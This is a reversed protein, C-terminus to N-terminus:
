ARQGDRGTTGIESIRPIQGPDRWAAALIEDQVPGRWVTLGAGHYPTLEGVKLGNDTLYMDVRIHDFGASMRESAKVIADIDRQDLNIGSQEVEGSFNDLRTGNRDFWDNRRTPTSKIGTLIRILAVQGGFTLVHAEVPALGDPGRLLAEAMLRRPLDRYGWELSSDFYDHRLWDRAMDALKEPAREVLDPVIAIPGSSHTPKLVFQDPLSQWDIDNPDNWTGLLPILYTAGLRDRIMERVALKDCVIKLRPDRDYLLRHIILDNFGVPPDLRLTAKMQRRYRRAHWGRALRTGLM